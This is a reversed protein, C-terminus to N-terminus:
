ERCMRVSCMRVEPQNSCHRSQAARAFALAHSAGPWARHLDLRVAARSNLPNGLPNPEALDGNVAYMKVSPHLLFCRKERGTVGVHATARATLPLARAPPPPRRARSKREVIALVRHQPQRRLPQSPLSDLALALRTGVVKLSSPNPHRPTGGSQWDGAEGAGVCLCGGHGRLTYQVSVETPMSRRRRSRGVWTHRSGAASACQPLGDM